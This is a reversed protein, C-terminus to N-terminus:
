IMHVSMYIPLMINRWSRIAWLSPMINVKLGGDIMSRVTSDIATQLEMAPYPEPSEWFFRDTSSVTEAYERNIRQFDEFLAEPVRGSLASFVDAPCITHADDTLMCYSDGECAGPSLMLYSCDYSRGEFQSVPLRPNRLCKMVTQVSTDVVGEGLKFGSLLNELKKLADSLVNNPKEGINHPPGFAPFDRDFVEAREITKPDDV